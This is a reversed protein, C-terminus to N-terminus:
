RRKNIMLVVPQGSEQAIERVAPRRLEPLAQRVVYVATRM